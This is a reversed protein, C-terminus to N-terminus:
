RNGGFSRSGLLSASNDRAPQTTEVWSKIRQERGDMETRLQAMTEDSASGINIDGMHIYPSPANNRGANAPMVNAGGIGGSILEPGKEGVIAFQGPGLGGGGALFKVPGAGSAIGATSSAVGGSGVSPIGFLSGLVGGISGGFAGGPKGPAGFLGSILGDEAISLLKQELQTAAARVGDIVSRGQQLQGVFAGLANSSVSRIDNFATKMDDLKENYAALKGQAAAAKDIAATIENWAAKQQATTMTAATRGNIAEQDYLKQRESAEAIAQSSEGWTSVSQKVEDNQAEIARTTNDIAKAISEYHAQAADSQAKTNLQQASAPSVLPTAGPFSKLPAPTAVSATAVSPTAFSNENVGISGYPNKASPIAPNTDPGFQITPGRYPAISNILDQKATSAAAAIAAATFPSAPSAPSAPSPAAAVGPNDVTARTIDRYKNSNQLRFAQEPNLGAAALNDRESQANKLAEANAQALLQNRTQMLAVEEQGTQLAKQRGTILLKGDAAMQREQDALIKESLTRANIVDLEAKNVLALRQMPMLLNSAEDKLKALVQTLNTVGDIPNGTKADFGNALSGAFGTSTDKARDLLSKVLEIQDQLKLRNAQDPMQSEVLGQAVNSLRVNDANNADSALKSAQAAIQAKIDAIQKQVKDNTVGFFKDIGAGQQLEDLQQQPSAFVAKDIFQGLKDKAVGVSISINDWGSRLMTTRDVAAQTVANIAELETRQAAHIDGIAQEQKIIQITKASFAGLQENMAVLGASPDKLAKAIDEGSKDVTQGTAISFARTSQEAIGINGASMTGTAAFRAALTRGETIGVGQPRNADALSALQASTLGTARGVGNLSLQLRTLSQEWEIAAGVGLAGMAVVGAGVMVMPNLLKGLVGGVTKLAGAVGGNAPALIEAIRGGELTLARLPSAGAALQDFLSKSVHMLELAQMRNGGMAHSHANWEKEAIGLVRTAEAASGGMQQFASVIGKAEALKTQSVYAKDVSLRLKDFAATAKDVETPVKTLPTLGSADAMIKFKLDPPM